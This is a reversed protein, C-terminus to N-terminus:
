PLIDEDTINLPERGAYAHYEDDAKKKLWSTLAEIMGDYDRARLKQGTIRETVIRLNKPTYATNLRMGQKIARLGHIAAIAAIRNRDVTM